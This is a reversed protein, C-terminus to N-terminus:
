PIFKNWRNDFKYASLQESHEMRIRKIAMPYINKNLM